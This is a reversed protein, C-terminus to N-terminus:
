FTLVGSSKGPDQCSSGMFCDKASRNTIRTEQAGAGIGCTTGVDVTVTVVMVESGAVGVADLVGVGGGPVAV